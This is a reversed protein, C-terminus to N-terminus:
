ILSAFSATQLILDREFELTYPNLSRSAQIIKDIDFGELKFFSNEIEDRHYTYSSIIGLNDLNPKIVRNKFHKKIYSFLINVKGHTTLLDEPCYGKGTKMKFLDTNTQRIIEAYLMQGKLRKIPNHTFFDNNCGAFDSRLLATIFDYDLFPVRVKLEHMQAVVLSGFVKRFVESFIYSYFFHNLTFFRSRTKRFSLIEEFLSEFENLYENKNIFVLKKSNWLQNKLKNDDIETFIQVLDKSTIAGQIHLARFLESGCYGTLLIKSFNKEKLAAYLYHPYLFGNFGGTIKTMRRSLDLYDQIYNLEKLNYSRYVLGLKKSNNYPIAVDDNELTGWSFTEFNARYSLGASVITRGDFGSTFTVSNKKSSFYNKTQYLFIEALENLNYPKLLTEANFWNKIDTHNEIKIKDNIYSLSSFTELRYIGALYTINSFPYNFLYTELIFKKNISTKCKEIKEILNLSNSITNYNNSYYVPIFGFLSPFIQFSNDSILVLIFIGKLQKLIFPEFKSKSNLIESNICDGFIILDKKSSIKVIKFDNVNSCFIFNGVKRTYSFFCKAPIKKKTFLFNM